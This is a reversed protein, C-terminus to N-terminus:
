GPRVHTARVGVCREDHRSRGAMDAIREDLSQHL